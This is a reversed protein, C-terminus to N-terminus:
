CDLSAQGAAKDAFVAAVEAGVGAVRGDQGSNTLVDLIHFAVANTLSRRREYAETLDITFFRM